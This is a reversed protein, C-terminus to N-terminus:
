YGEAHMKAFAQQKNMGGAVLEKYRAAPEVKVGGSAPAEAGAGANEKAAGGGPVANPIRAKSIESRIQKDFGPDLKGNAKMYDDAMDGWKMMLDGAHDLLNLKAKIGELTDEPTINAKEELDLMPKFIRGGQEGTESAMSKIGSIQDSLIRAAVQNFIERPAAGQTKIGFQAALRQMQLAADSGAGPVFNPSAAVQRLLDINQKQQAAIMASGALGRHLSDYYKANAEASAEATKKPGAFSSEAAEEAAKKAGAAAAQTDLAGQLPNSPVSTAPAGATPMAAAGSAGQPAVTPPAAGQGGMAANFRDAYKQVTTGLVDRANPNNMGGEGAFWARAAGDPGYKQAYQGFKADFVADQAQPNALFQQPTMPKGLVEQTWQPINAGMVQYKGYARDGTKTQPGVQGYNGGSEIGSIAQRAKARELDLQLKAPETQPNTNEAIPTSGSFRQQGPSLNSPESLLTLGKQYAQLGQMRVFPDSSTLAARLPHGDPLTAAANEASHAYAKALDSVASRQLYSGAGAQAVRALAQWPSAPATSMGQSILSQGLQLEPTAAAITPDLFAGPNNEAGLLAAALPSAAM